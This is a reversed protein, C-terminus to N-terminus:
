ITLDNEEKYEIAKRLLEALVYTGLWAIIFIAIAIIEFVSIIFFMGIIYIISIILSCISVNKLCKVNGMIFPNDEKLTGFIKIFQFVIILAPIGSTYLIVLAAAYNLVPNFLEIYMNLLIPLTLYILIGLVFIIKLCIEIFNSLSNKGKIRM